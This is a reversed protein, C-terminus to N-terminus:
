RTVKDDNKDMTYSLNWNKESQNSALECLYTHFINM